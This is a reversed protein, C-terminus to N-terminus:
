ILQDILKDRLFHTGSFPGTGTIYETVAPGNSRLSMASTVRTNTLANDIIGHASGKPRPGAERKSDGAHLRHGAPLYYARYERKLFIGIGKLAVKLKCYFQSSSVSM